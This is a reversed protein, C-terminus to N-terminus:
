SRRCGPGGTRIRSSSTTITTRGSNWTKPSDLMRSGHTPEARRHREDGRKSGAAHELHDLPVPDGHELTDGGHVDRQEVMGVAVAVVGGRQPHADGPRGMGASTMSSTSRVNPM